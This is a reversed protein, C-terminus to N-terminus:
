GTASYPHPLVQLLHLRTFPLYTVPPMGELSAHPSQGKRERQKGVRKIHFPKRGSTSRGHHVTDGCAWLSPVLQDHVSGESIILWFLFTVSFLYDRVLFLAVRSSLSIMDNALPQLSSFVRALKLCMDTKNGLCKGFASIVNHLFSYILNSSLQFVCLFKGSYM